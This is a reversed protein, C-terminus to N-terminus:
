KLFDFKINRAKDKLAVQDRSSLISKDRRDRDKLLKWSTGLEEILEILTETEEDTWAKRIQPKKPQVSTVIKAQMNAIKYNELQSPAPIQEQNHRAVATRTEESLSDDSSVVRVRKARRNNTTPAPAVHKRSSSPVPRTRVNIQREDQEFGEDSSTEETPELTAEEEMNAGQPLQPQEQDRLVSQTPEPSEFSIREANPQPDTFYRKKRRGAPDEYRGINEKNNEADRRAQLELVQRGRATPDLAIKKKSAVLVDDDDVEEFAQHRWIEDGEQHLGLVRRASGHGPDQSDMEQAGGYPGTELEKEETMKTANATNVGDLVQRAKPSQPAKPAEAKLQKLHAVSYRLYKPSNFSNIANAIHYINNM